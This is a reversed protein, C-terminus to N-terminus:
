VITEALGARFGFGPAWTLSPGSGKLRSLAAPGQRLDSARPGKSVVQTSTASKSDQQPGARGAPPMRLWIPQACMAVQPLPAFLKRNREPAFRTRNPHSGLAPRTLTPHSEPALRTRTPHSDPASPTRNPHSDPAFRLPRPARPLTEPGPCLVSIASLRPIFRNPGRLAGVPLGLSRRILPGSDSVYSAERARTPVTARFFLDALPIHRATYLRASAPEM